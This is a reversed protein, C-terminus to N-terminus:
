NNLFAEAEYEALSKYYDGYIIANSIKATATNQERLNILFFDSGGKKFRIMEAEELKKSLEVETTLNEHMQSFSNVINQKQTLVVKTTDLLLREEYKIKDILARSKAIEGKAKRQQLPLEFNVGIQNKVPGRTADENSIDNSVAVDVDLKPKYLNKAQELNAQQKKNAIKIIKIDARNQFAHILDREFKSNEIKTLKEEIKIHPMRDSKVVIPDGKQDRYFLSLYLASNEFDQKAKIMSTKRNLVNRENEVLIIQAVDGKAVLIKLQENRKVALEYLEKYILYIKGDIIWEYYAKTADRRIENKINDLAFRSEEVNLKSLALALRNEDITANRLLSFRAGVRVEGDRNTKRDGEYDPFNGFSKRYGGYIESGLFQNQKSIETNIQKGDYYGRSNDLYSQRLKIDFFGLSALETGKAAEVEEYLALVKPYNRVASDVVEKLSLEHAENAHANAAFIIAFFFTLIRM